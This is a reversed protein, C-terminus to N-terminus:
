LMSKSFTKCTPSALAVIWLIKFAYANQFGIRIIYLYHNLVHAFITHFFRFFLQIEKSFCKIKVCLFCTGQILAIINIMHIKKLLDWVWNEAVWYLESLTLIFNLSHRWFLATSLFFFFNIYLCWKRYSQCGKLKNRNWM